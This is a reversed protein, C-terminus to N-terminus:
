LEHTCKRFQKYCHYDLCERYIEANEGFGSLTIDDIIARELNSITLIEQNTRKDKIPPIYNFHSLVVIILAAIFAVILLVRVLTPLDEFLFTVLTLIGVVIGIVVSVKELLGL